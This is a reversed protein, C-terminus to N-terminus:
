MLTSLYIPSYLTGQSMQGQHQDFYQPVPKSSNGYQSDTLFGESKGLSNIMQSNKGMMGLNGNLSGNSFGYPKQNLTSMIGGGMHSGLSRLIRSNQGGVQQKQQLPQSVMASDVSSLVSVNNSPDLKMYSQNSKNNSNNFGPTPMMQSGIRQGDTSSNVSFNSLSQQSVDTLGPFTAGLYQVYFM